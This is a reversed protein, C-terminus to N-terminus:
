KNIGLVGEPVYAPLLLEGNVETKPQVKWTDGASAWRRSMQSSTVNSKTEQGVEKGKATKGKPNWKLAQKTINCNPKRLRRTANPQNQALLRITNAM